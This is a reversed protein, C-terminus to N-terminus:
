PYKNRVSYTVGDTNSGTTYLNPFRLALWEAVAGRQSVNIYVCILLLLIFYFNIM